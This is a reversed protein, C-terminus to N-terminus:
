ANLKRRWALADRLIEGLDEHAPAWGLARRIRQAEAVLVPPDGPRRGTARTPVPAGIVEELKRVVELVSFGKGYGCNLATAAGGAELYRLAAVHAEALDAVHVYDRECTGDRTPYDAGYIDLCPRAGLAADLASDILHTANRTRKGARGKPDAGAVNFYRLSVPRFAPEAAAVDWLMREVMAKSSGYPNIPAIPADERVPSADPAGYVAASSSFVFRGVGSRVCVDILALSKGTNNAYYRLPERVSDPVVISAAFHMVAGAGYRRLLDGVLEADGVDGVELAVGTPVADRAGTSLDDLVVPTDGAELLALVAQSGIYGAGGTVLVVTMAAVFFARAAHAGRTAVLL